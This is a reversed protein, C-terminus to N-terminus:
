HEEPTTANDCPHYVSLIHIRIKNVSCIKYTANGKYSAHFNHHQVTRNNTAVWVGGSRKHATQYLQEYLPFKMQETLKTETLICIDPENIKLIRTQTFTQKDLDNIGRNNFLM